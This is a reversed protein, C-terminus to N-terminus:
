PAVFGINYNYTFRNEKFSYKRTIEGDPNIQLLTNEEQGRILVEYNQTNNSYIIHKIGCIIKGAYEKELNNKVQNPLETTSIMMKTKLWKGEKDFCLLVKRHLSDSYVSYEFESDSDIYTTISIEPELQFEKNGYRASIEKQYNNTLRKVEYGDGTKICKMYNSVHASDLLALYYNEGNVIEVSSVSVIKSSPFNRLLFNNIDFPIENKKLIIKQECFIGSSDYKIARLKHEGELGIFVKYHNGFEVNGGSLKIEPFKKALQSLINEPLWHYSIIQGSARQSILQLLLLFIIAIKKM